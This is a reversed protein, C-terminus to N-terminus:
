LDMYDQFLVQLISFGDKRFSEELEAPLKIEHYRDLGTHYVIYGQYRLYGFGEDLSFFAFEPTYPNLLNRSWTFRENTIELQPLLTAIIGSQNGLHPIKIGRYEDKIAGGAWLLPIRFYNPSFSPWNYYSNHSHDAVLIFLTNDYWSQKKAARFFNGLCHDTYWAANVYDKEPLDWNLGHQIPQDFPSHTSLTFLASFFPQKEHNLEQIQRQLVFEDHVGLKGKPIEAGFDYIERIKDFGNNYIFGKINGYILQGGFFFSTSYGSSKLTQTLTPINVFKDPQVTVSSVPHAPFGSLISAMAQESREGDAYINTFLIGEKEMQRFEPTIGPVGGLSEVLDASWSELILLIINPRPTKLVMLSTDVPVKYVSDVRARAEEMNYRIFPNIGLNKKNEFISIYLNFANNTATLNLINKGSFYSESQNIPIPQWGGRAGLLLLGPTIILFTMAFGLNRKGPIIPVFIFRRYIWYGSITIATLLIFLIFFTFTSSSNYIEAPHQLYKLAKYSLKTKWEPYIGMEGATILSYLTIMFGTYFQNVLNFFKHPWIIQVMLILFPIFLFYCATALDLHFAHYFVALIEGFSAEDALFRPLNYLIFILRASAFFLLWFLTQLLLSKITQRIM